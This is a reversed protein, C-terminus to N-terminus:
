RRRKTRTGSRRRKPAPRVKTRPRKGNSLEIERQILWAADPDLRIFEVGIGVGPECYRVEGRTRIEEGTLVLRFKLSLVASEPFSRSTNIFMGRSSLNPPKVMIEEDQGEYSIAIEEVSYVRPSSRSRLPKERGTRHGNM